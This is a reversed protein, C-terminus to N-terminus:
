QFKNIIKIISNVNDVSIQSLGQPKTSPTLGNNTNNVRNQDVVTNKSSDVLQQYATQDQPETGHLLNMNAQDIYIITQGAQVSFPNKINNIVMLEEVYDKTGYLAICILDLRMQYQQPIIYQYSGSAAIPTNWLVTRSDLDYLNGELPNRQLMGTKFSYFNSM